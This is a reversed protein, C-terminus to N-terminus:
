WWEITASASCFAGDLRVSFDYLVEGQLETLDLKYMRDLVAKVEDLSIKGRYETFIQIARDTNEFLKNEHNEVLLNLIREELEEIIKAKEM